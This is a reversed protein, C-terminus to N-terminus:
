GQRRLFGIAAEDDYGLAAMAALYQTALSTAEPDSAQVQGPAVSTGNRGGTVVLGAAELERYARAVTNAALGLQDALRRVPPLKTGEALRGSEIQETLQERLQEFPPVSSDPDVALSTM